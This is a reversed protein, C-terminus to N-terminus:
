SYDPLLESKHADRQGKTEECHEGEGAKPHGAPRLVPPLTKDGGREPPKQRPM